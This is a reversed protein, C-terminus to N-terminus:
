ILAKKNYHNPFTPTEGGLSPSLSLSLSHPLLGSCSMCIRKLNINLSNDVVEEMVFFAVGKLIVSFAVVKIM